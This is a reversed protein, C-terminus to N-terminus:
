GGTLAIVLREAAALTAIAAGDAEPVAVNVYVTGNQTPTSVDAVTGSFTQPPGTPPKETAVFSQPPLAILVVKMGPRVRQAPVNSQSLGVSVLYTGPGGLPVDVVQEETLLAGKYLEVAAYKGVVEGSRSASIPRLAPDTSIRVTTLDASTIKAGAQVQQGVALYSNTSGVLTIAYAASLGGTAVLAVALAVLGPRWRRQPALKPIPIPAATPAPAIRTNTTTTATM